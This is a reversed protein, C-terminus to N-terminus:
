PPTNPLHLWGKAYASLISVLLAALLGSIWSWTAPASKELFSPRKEGLIINALPIYRQHFKLNGYAILVVAALFGARWWISPLEPLFVIAWFLILQNIGFGLRRINIAYFREFQKIDRKLRAAMGLTWSEDSSQVMAYNTAPGFEITVARNVGGFEPKQAFLKIVEAKRYPLEIRRFDDLFRSQETGATITVIVRGGLFESQLKEGLKLIQEKDIQIAGFGTRQTHIQDAQPVTESNAQADRDHPYLAFIGGTGLSTHWEGHIQGRSDLRGEALLDGAKTNDPSHSPYGKLKLILGDFTANVNYVVLGLNSDAVRAVGSLASDDGDLKVFVNGVNTGFLRGAWLRGLTM